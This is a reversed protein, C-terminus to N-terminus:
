YQNANFWSLFWSSRSNDEPVEDENEVVIVSPIEELEFKDNDNSNSFKTTLGSLSREVDLEGDSNSIRATSYSRDFPVNLLKNGDQWVSANSVSNSFPLEIKAFKKDASSDKNTMQKCPSIVRELGPAAKKEEEKKKKKIDTIGKKCEEMEKRERETREKISEAQSSQTTCSAKKRDQCIQERKKSCHDETKSKGCPEQKKPTYSCSSKSGTTCPEQKRPTHSCTSTRATKCPEQKRPTHTCSAKSGTKCPDQQRPTHSCSTRSATKCPDVKKPPAACSTKSVKKCPDEKKKECSTHVKKCPDEKADSGGRYKKCPDEKKKTDCKSHVKKCPDEKKADSGGRYKKCPDEKKKTDCSSHVKKCPDEKKKTDCSPRVKKCPDEKKKMDCSPRVKKCSDEAGSGGRYTKCPDEKKAGCSPKKTQCKTPPRGCKTDSKTDKCSSSSKAKKGYFRDVSPSGFWNQKTEGNSRVGILPVAFAPLSSCRKINKTSRSPNSYASQTYNRRGTCKASRKGCDRDDCKRQRKCSDRRRPKTCIERGGQENQSCDQRERQCSRRKQQRDCSRERNCSHDRRERNCKRERKCSKNDDKRRHPKTCIERGHEQAEEEPPMCTPDIKRENKKVANKCKDKPCQFKSYDCDTPTQLAPCCYRKCIKKSEKKCKPREKECKRRSNRNRSCKRDENERSKRAPNASSTSINSRSNKSNTTRRPGSLSELKKSLCSNNSSSRRTTFPPLSSPPKRSGGGSSGMSSGSGGLPGARYSQPAGSGTGGQLKAQTAACPSTKGQQGENPSTIKLEQSKVPIGIISEYDLKNDLKIPERRFTTSNSRKYPRPAFYTSSQLEDAAKSRPVKPPLERTEMRNTKTQAPESIPATSQNEMSSWESTANEEVQQYTPPSPKAISESAEMEKRAEMSSAEETADVMPSKEKSQKFVPASPKPIKKPPESSYRASPQTRLKVQSTSVESKSIPLFKVDEVKTASITGQTPTAFVEQNARFEAKDNLDHSVIQKRAENEAADIKVGELEKAHNTKEMSEIIKPTSRLSGSDGTKSSVTKGKSAVKNPYNSLPVLEEFENRSLIDFDCSKGGPVFAFDGAQENRLTKYGKLKWKLTKPVPNGDLLSMLNEQNLPKHVKLWSMPTSRLDLHYGYENPNLAVTTTMTTSAPNSAGDLENSSALTTSVVDKSSPSKKVDRCPEEKAPFEFFSWFRGSSPSTHLQSSPSQHNSVLRNQFGKPPLVHPLDQLMLTRFGKM